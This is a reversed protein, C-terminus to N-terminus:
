LMVATIDVGHKATRAEHNGDVAVMVRDQLPLLAGAMYEMQEHPRGYWASNKGPSDPQANDILDGLLMVFCNDTKKIFNLRDKLLTGDSLRDGEHLDGIALIIIEKFDASLEVTSVKM